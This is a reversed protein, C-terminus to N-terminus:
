RKGFLLNQREGYGGFLVVAADVLGIPLDQLVPVRIRGPNELVHGLHFVGVLVHQDVHMVHEMLRSREEFPMRDSYSVYRYTSNIVFESGLWYGLLAGGVFGVADALGELLLPNM